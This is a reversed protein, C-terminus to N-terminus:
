LLFFFCALVLRGLESSCCVSWLNSLVDGVQSLPVEVNQTWALYSVDYLLMALATTFSSQPQEPPLSNYFSETIPADQPIEGNAHRDTTSSSGSSSRTASPSSSSSPGANQPSVTPASSSLHLPHKKYWRNPFAFWGASDNLSGLAISCPIFTSRGAVMRAVKSLVSLHSDSVWSRAM